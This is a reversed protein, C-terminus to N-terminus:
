LYPQQVFENMCITGQVFENICVDKEHSHVPTMLSLFSGVDNDSQMKEHSHVPTMLSLISGVDNDSQMPVRLELLCKVLESDESECISSGMDRIHVDFSM